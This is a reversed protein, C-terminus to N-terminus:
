ICHIHSEWIIITHKKEIKNAIKGQIDDTTVVTAHGYL